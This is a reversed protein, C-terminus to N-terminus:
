PFIVDHVTFTDLDSFFRVLGGSYEVKAQVQWEGAVDFTALLTQYELVSDEGTPIVPTVTVSTGGTPAVIRFELLSADSLPNYADAISQDGDKITYRLIPTGGIHIEDRAM